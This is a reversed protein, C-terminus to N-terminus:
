ATYFYTESTDPQHEPAQVAPPELTPTQQIKQAEANNEYEDAFISSPPNSGAEVTRTLIFEM